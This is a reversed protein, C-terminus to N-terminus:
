AVKVLCRIVEAISWAQAICGRPHHPPLADFIETIFGFGAEELHSQFGELYKKIDQKDNPYIKLWTDIYPGVLWSWVTGQHYAADRSRLDGGYTEKFDPHGAALSRLGVPTLLQNKAIDFVAKWRVPDLVPYDLSVAFLQNPRLEDVNGNEGEIVDFLYQKKENWFKKNFSQYVQEALQSVEHALSPYAEIKLWNEFIRLANYWLANIEVAKGRRPTVVWGEVKADMWTLQYGEAGQVLLGDTRDVHIGFLTGEMHAHYIELLKPFAFQLTERDKTRELYRHLAHFFWLTADATHYLGEQEGEPFMNPILGHKVYYAFTRLIWRAEDERGTCLTLGELSIMTDRGWDGFWHYGAIVTRVDDGAANARVKDQTRSEPTVIFADAAFILQDSMKSKPIQVAKKLLLEKRFFEAQLAEFASIALIEEWSQTSLTLGIAKQGEKLPIRFFGPTWFSSLAPLGRRAEKRFFIDTVEYKDLIFVSEGSLYFKLSPYSSHTIEYQNENITLIYPKALYNSLDQSIPRFNLYPLLKIEISQDETLLEYIVHATNQDHTMFIRKQFQVGEINFRWVPTGNELYFNELYELNKIDILGDAKEFNNLIFERGDSLRVIELLHSLIVTRGIEPLSPVFVGHYKRTPICALSSSCYGGLGNGIIWERELWKDPSPKQNSFDSDFIVNSM